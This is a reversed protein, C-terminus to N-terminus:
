GPLEWDLLALDAGSRQWRALASLADSELDVVARPWLHKVLQELLAAMSPEDELILVRM